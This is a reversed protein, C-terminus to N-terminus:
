WEQCNELWCGLKGNRNFFTPVTLLLTFSTPLFAHYSILSLLSLHGSYFKGVILAWPMKLFLEPDIIFEKEKRRKPPPGYPVAASRVSPSAKRKKTSPMDPNEFRHFADIKASYSGTATIGHAILVEKIKSKVSDADREDDPLEKAVQEWISEKEKETLKSYLKASSKSEGESDEDNDNDEDNSKDKDNIKDEEEDDDQDEDEVEREKRKGSVKQPASPMRVVSPQPSKTEPKTEKTEPETKDPKTEKIEPKTEESEESEDESEEM